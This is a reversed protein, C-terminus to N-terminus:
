YGSSFIGQTTVLEDSREPLTAHTRNVQRDGAAQGVKALQQDDFLQPLIEGGILAEHLHKEVFGLESRPEVM